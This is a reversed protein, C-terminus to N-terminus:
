SYRVASCRACSRGSMPSTRPQGHRPHVEPDGTLRAITVAELVREEGRVAVGDDEVGLARERQGLTEDVVVCTRPRAAESIAAM